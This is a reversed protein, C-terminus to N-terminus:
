EIKGVSALTLIGFGENVKLVNGLSVGVTLVFPVTVPGTTVGASDWAVNVLDEPSFITLSIAVIYGVFIFYILPISYIIKLVGLAIGTGVGFSVSFILMKKTLAGETLKEVTMGMVALAPEAITALFGLVWSFLTVILLGVGYPFRPSNAVDDVQIFAAPLIGGSQQGLPALGFTLGLNFIIMGFLACFIGVYLGYDAFTKKEVGGNPSSLSGDQQPVSELTAITGQLREKDRSIRDEDDDDNNNNNNNNNNNVNSEEDDDKNLLEIEDSRIEVTAPANDSNEKLIVKALNIAPLDTRVILKIVLFLFIVLPIIARSALYAERYPSRDYWSETTEESVQNIIDQTSKIMSIFISLIIVSLIPFISALTVIGFGSLPSSEEGDGQKSATVGLGLALVIPVTVPGTTVAGCDWALGLVSRLDPQVWMAYCTLLITPIFSVYIIKKLSVKYLLRLIGVVAALGVGIGVFFM